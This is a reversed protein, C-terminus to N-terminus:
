IQDRDHRMGGAFDNCLFCSRALMHVIRALFGPM